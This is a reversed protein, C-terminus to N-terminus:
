LTGGDNWVGPKGAVHKNDLMTVSYHYTIALAGQLPALGLHHGRDAHEAEPLETPLAHSQLPNLLTIAHDRQERGSSSIFFGESANLM